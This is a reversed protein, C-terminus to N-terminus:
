LCAKGLALRPGSAGHKIIVNRLTNSGHLNDYVKMSILRVQKGFCVDVVRWGKLGAVSTKRKWTAFIACHVYGCM